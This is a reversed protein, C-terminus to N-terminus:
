EASHIDFLTNSPRTQRVENASDLSDIRIAAVTSVSLKLGAGNNM